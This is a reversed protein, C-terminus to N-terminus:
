FHIYMVNKFLSIFLQIIEILIVWKTIFENEDSCILSIDKIDEFIKTIDDVNVYSNEEYLKCIGFYMIVVILIIMDLSIIIIFVQGHFNQQVTLNIFKVKEM